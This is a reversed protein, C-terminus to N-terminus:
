WDLKPAEPKIHSLNELTLPTEAPYSAGGNNASLSANLQVLDARAQTAYGYYAGGGLMLVAGLVILFIAPFGLFRHKLLRDHLQLYDYGAEM